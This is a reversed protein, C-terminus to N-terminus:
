SEVYCDRVVAGKYQFVYDCCCSDVKENYGLLKSM